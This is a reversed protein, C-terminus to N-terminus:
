RTSWCGHHRGEPTQTSPLPTSQFLRPGTFRTEEEACKIPQFHTNPLAAILEEDSTSSHEDGASVPRTHSRALAATYSGKWPHPPNHLNYSGSNILNYSSGSWTTKKTRGLRETTQSTPKKWEKLSSASTSSSSSRRWRASTKKTSTQIPTAM